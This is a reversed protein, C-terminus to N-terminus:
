TCGCVFPSGGCLAFNSRLPTFKSNRTIARHTASNNIKNRVKLYDYYEHILDSWDSVIDTGCCSCHLFMILKEFLKQFNNVGTEWVFWLCHVLFVINQPSPPTIKQCFNSKAFRETM